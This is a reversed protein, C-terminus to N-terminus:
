FGAFVMPFFTLDGDGNATVTGLNQNIDLSIRLNRALAYKIAGGVNTLSGTDGATGVAGGVNTIGQRYGVVINLNDIVQVDLAVAAAAADAQQGFANAYTIVLAVPIGLQGMLQLDGAIYSSQQTYASTQTAPDPTSTNLQQGTKYTLGLALDMGGVSPTIAARFYHRMVSINLNNATQTMGYATQATDTNVYPVWAIFGIPNWVYFGIGASDADGGWDVAEQASSYEKMETIRINEVNSTSLAEFAFQPGLGGYFPVIGIRVPGVQPAFVMKFNGIVRANWPGLGSIEAFFGVDKKIRGGGLLAIEDPANLTATFTKAKSNSVLEANYKVAISLNLAKPISLVEGDGMMNDDNGDSYGGAKFAQGFTNLAPFGPSAHCSGCELGTQRAYAPIGHVSSTLGLTALAALASFVIKLQNRM